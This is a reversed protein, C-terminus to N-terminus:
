WTFIARAKLLHLLDYDNAEGLQEPEGARRDEDADKDGEGDGRDEGAYLGQPVVCRGRPDVLELCLLDDLLAPSLGGLTGEVLVPLPLCVGVGCGEHVGDAGLGGLGAQGLLLFRDIVELLLMARARHRIESPSVKLAHPAPLLLWARTSNM